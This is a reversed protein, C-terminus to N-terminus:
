MTGVVLCCVAYVVGWCVFVVKELLMLLLVVCNHLQHHPPFLLPTNPACECDGVGMHFMVVVNRM